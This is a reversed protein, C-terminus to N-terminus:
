QIKRITKAPVGAVLTNAPINKTVVSGAAVFSNTGITVGSLITVCAGVVSGSKITVGSVKKPFYKQLPHDKYGVNIHTLITVRQAITVKDEITVPGYLDILTEDGLFAEEGVSLGGPGKHHWNFFKINMINTNNGIKAGLMQLFLKRLPPLSMLIFIIKICEFLVFKVGKKIGIEELEKM